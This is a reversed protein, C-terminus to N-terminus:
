MFIQCHQLKCALGTTPLTLGVSMKWWLAALVFLSLRACCWVSIAAVCTTCFGGYVSLLSLFLCLETISRRHKSDEEEHTATQSFVHHVQVFCATVDGFGTLLGHCATTMHVSPRAALFLTANSAFFKVFRSGARQPAM